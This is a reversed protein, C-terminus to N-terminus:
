ENSGRLPVLRVQNIQWFFDGILIFIFISVFLYPILAFIGGYFNDKSLRKGNIGRLPIRATFSNSNKDIAIKSVTPQPFKYKSNLVNLAEEASQFRDESIPELIKDLWNAFRDSINAWNRFDFKMRVQPLCDPDQKTLLFLLTTGLAYLDTNFSINGRLQEPPMYGLTGVFTSNRTTTQRYVEKVSGFDVLFIKGDKNRILNQPKLDRHIIAPKQQHLYQLIKLIKRAIEQVEAENPQWGQRILDYLSDGTVLERVLYFHRDEPTDEYFYEIYKPIASHELSALAKAERELLDIAQWDKVQHFSIVKIAVKEQRDIDEAEYTKGTGGEGLLRIIQYKEAIVRDM